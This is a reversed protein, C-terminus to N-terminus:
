ASKQRRRLLADRKMALEDVQVETVEPMSIGNGRNYEFVRQMEM